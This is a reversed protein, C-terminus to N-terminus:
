DADPDKDPVTRDLADARAAYEQAFERLRQILEPDNSSRALRLAHEAEERYFASEVM